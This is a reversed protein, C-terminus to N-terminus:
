APRTSMRTARASKLARRHIFDFFRENDATVTGGALEGIRAAGAIVPVLSLIILAAPVLWKAWRRSVPTPALANETAM